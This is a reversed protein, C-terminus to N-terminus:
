MSLGAKTGQPNAHDASGGSTAHGFFTGRYLSGIVGTEMFDSDASSREDLAKQALARYDHATPHEPNLAIAM